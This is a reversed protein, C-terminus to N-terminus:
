TKTMRLSLVPIPPLSKLLSLVSCLHGAPPGLGQSVLSASVLPENFDPTAPDRGLEGVRFLPPVSYRRPIPKGPGQVGIGSAKKCKPDVVSSPM